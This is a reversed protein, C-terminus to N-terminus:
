RYLAFNSLRGLGLGTLTAATPLFSLVFKLAPDIMRENINSVGHNYVGWGLSLAGGVIMLKYNLALTTKLNHLLSYPRGELEKMETKLKTLKDNITETTAGPNAKVYFHKKLLGLREKDIDSLSPDQIAVHTREGILNRLTGKPDSTPLFIAEGDENTSPTLINEFAKNLAKFTDDNQLLGHLLYYIELIKTKESFIPASINLYGVSGNNTLCLEGQFKDPSLGERFKKFKETMLQYFEKVPKASPFYSRLFNFIKVDTEYKFPDYRPEAFLSNLGAILFLHIIIKNLKKM